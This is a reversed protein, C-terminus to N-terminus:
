HDKKEIRRESKKHDYKSKKMFEPPHIITFEAIGILVFNFVLMIFLFNKYEVKHEIIDRKVFDFHYKIREMTSNKHKYM